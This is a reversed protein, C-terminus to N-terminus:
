VLKGIILKELAGVGGVVEGELLFNHGMEM